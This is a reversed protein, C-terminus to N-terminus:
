SAKAQPSVESRASQAVLATAQEAPMPRAFYFGQYQDCSLKSLMHTQSQTEVGEVTVKMGLKHGLHVITEIIDRYRDQDFDHGQLFSRDIKLKDFHYKWLYGLSSYGTGFDDMAVRVGHDQLAGIKSSVGIEDSLLISETLELELKHAPLGVDALIALIDATLTDSQLQVPSLNVSVYIDDDWNAATQLATRLTWLGISNILGTREAVPIFEDPTIPNGDVDSLRLLAEFGAIQGSGVDIVPQYHLDLLGDREAARLRKEVLKSRANAIDLSPVYEVMQNRGNQKAQYLALDAQALADEFSQGLPSLHAGISFTASVATDDLWVSKAGVSLIRNAMARLSQRTMAPLVIVFEDGGMRGIFGAKQVTDQMATAHERLLADGMPHGFGDNIGKFNDIDIFLVGIQEAPDRRELFLQETVINLGARNYSGTLPDHRSMQRLAHDKAREREVVRILYLMPLLFILASALPIAMSFWDIIGFTGAGHERKSKTLAMTGLIAGSQDRMPVFVQLTQTDAVPVILADARRAIGQGTQAVEIAIARDQATPAWNLQPTQYGPTGDPTFLTIGYVDAVSEIMNIGHDHHHNSKQGTLLADLDSTHKVFHTAWTGAHSLRATTEDTERMWSLVQAVLVVLAISLAITALIAIHYPHLHRQDSDTM